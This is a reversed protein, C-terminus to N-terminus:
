WFEVLNEVINRALDRAAAPLAAEKESAIDGSLTFTTEGKVVKNVMVKGTATDEFLIRARLQIRYETVTRASEREYRLPQLEYRVLRVTLASDADGERVVRLTGDKRLESLVARTTESELLPESTENVFTPVHVTRIGPPLTSGLRYGLCGAVLAVAPLIAWTFAVRSRM